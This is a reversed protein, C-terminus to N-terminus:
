LIIGATASTLGNVQKADTALKASLAGPSNKKDEFWKIPMHLIKGFALRRLRVTQCEAVITM